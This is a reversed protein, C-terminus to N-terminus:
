GARLSFNLLGIRFVPLNVLLQLRPRQGPRLHSPEVPRPAPQNGSLKAANLRNSRRVGTERLNFSKKGTKRHAAHHRFLDHRNLTDLRVARCSRARNSRSKAGVVTSHFRDPHEIFHATGPKKPIKVGLFKPPIQRGLIHALSLLGPEDDVSAHGLQLVIRKAVIRANNGHGSLIVKHVGLRM